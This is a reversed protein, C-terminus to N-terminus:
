FHIGIVLMQYLKVLRLFTTNPYKYATASKPSHKPALINIIERIKKKIRYEYFIINKFSNHQLIYHNPM